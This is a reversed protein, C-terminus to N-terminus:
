PDSGSTQTILGKAISWLSSCLLRKRSVHIMPPKGPSWRQSHQSLLSLGWTQAFLVSRKQQYFRVVWRDAGGPTTSLSRLPALFTQYNLFIGKRLQLPDCHSDPNFSQHSWLSWRFLCNVLLSFFVWQWGGVVAADKNLSRSVFLAVQFQKYWDSSPGMKHSYIIRLLWLIHEQM